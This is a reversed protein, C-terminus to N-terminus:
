GQAIRVLDFLEDAAAVAAPDSGTAAYIAPRLELIRRLASERDYGLMDVMVADQEGPSDEDGLPEVVLAVGAGAPVEADLLVLEAPEEGAEGADDTGAETAIVDGPGALAPTAPAGSQTAQVLGASEHAASVAEGAGYRELLEERMHRLRSLAHTPAPDENRDLSGVASRLADRAVRYIDLWERKVGIDLKAIVRTLDEIARLVEAVVPLEDLRAAGLLARQRRLINRLPERNMPDAALQQVGAELTDAIGAVERAAYERFEADPRAATTAATDHGAIHAPLQVGADTWRRAVGAAREDLEGEDGGELLANLDELTSRVRDAVEASWALQSAMVGRLAVELAGAARYIRDERAMQAAGRVARAARHLEATDPTPASRLGRELLALMERAETEFYESLSPM